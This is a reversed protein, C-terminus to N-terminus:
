KLRILKRVVLKQLCGLTTNREIGEAEAASLLAERDFKGTKIIEFVKFRTSRQFRTDGAKGLATLEVESWKPHRGSRPAGPERPKRPARSKKSESVGGREIAENIRRIAAKRDSFREIPTTVAPLNNYYTVLEKLTAIGAFTEPDTVHYDFGGKDGVEVAEEMTDFKGVIKKLDNNILYRM